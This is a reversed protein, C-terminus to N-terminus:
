GWNGCARTTIGPDNTSRIFRDFSDEYQQRMNAQSMQIEHRRNSNAKRGEETNEDFWAAHALLLEVADMEILPHFQALLPSSDISADEAWTGQSYLVIYTASLQPTPLVRVYVDPDSPQRYFAMRLATNPSGDWNALSAALNQPYPWDYNLNNLEFFEVYRQVTSPNQPYYTIVSLPKGFSSDVSLPYDSTNPTVTLRCEQVSWAKGTASSQNVRAQASDTVARFVHRLSPTQPAPDVLRERVSNAMGQLTAV